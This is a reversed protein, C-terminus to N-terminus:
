KKPMVLVNQEDEWKELLKEPYHIRHAKNKHYAPGAGTTRWVALTSTKVGLREAVVEPKLLDGHKNRDYKMDIGRKRQVRDCLAIAILSVKEDASKM